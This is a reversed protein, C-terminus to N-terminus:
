GPLVAVVLAEVSGKALLNEVSFSKAGGALGLGDDILPEFLIVMDPGM